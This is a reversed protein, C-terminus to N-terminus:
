SGPPGKLEVQNGDPDEIYISPGQGDAGFRLAPETHAVGLADLHKALATEDWPDIRLCFHEMNAPAGGPPSARAEQLDIMTNGARLMVITGKSVRMEERCGLVDAYFKLSRALDAVRLVVHDIGKVTFDM